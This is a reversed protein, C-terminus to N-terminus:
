RRVISEAGILGIMPWGFVLGRAKEGCDAGRRTGSRGDACIVYKM